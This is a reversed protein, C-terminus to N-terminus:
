WLCSDQSESRDVNCVRLSQIHQISESFLLRVKLIESFTINIVGFKLLESILEDKVTLEEVIMTRNNVILRKWGRVYDQSFDTRTANPSVLPEDRHTSDVATPELYNAVHVQGLEILAEKLKLFDSDPRKLMIYELLKAV